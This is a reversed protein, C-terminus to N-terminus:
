LDSFQLRMLRERIHKTLQSEVFTPRSFLDCSNRDEKQSWFQNRRHHTRIHSGVTWVSLRIKTEIFHLRFQSTQFDTNWIESYTIGLTITFLVHQKSHTWITFASKPFQLKKNIGLKGLITIPLPSYARTIICFDAWIM